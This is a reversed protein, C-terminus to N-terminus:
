GSRFRALVFARGQKVRLDMQPHKVAFIVPIKLARQVPVRQVDMVAKHAASGPQPTTVSSQASALAFTGAIIAALLCVAVTKQM